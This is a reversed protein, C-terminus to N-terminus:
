QVEDGKFILLMTICDANVCDQYTPRCFWIESKEFVAENKILLRMVFHCSIIKGSENRVVDINQLSFGFCVIQSLKQLGLM